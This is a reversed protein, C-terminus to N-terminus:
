REFLNLQDDDSNNSQRAIRRLRDLVRQVRHRIATASHGNRRSLEAASIGQLKFQTLLEREATSLWGRQQCNDLFRHLLIHAFSDDSTHHPELLRVPGVSGDGQLSRHSERIAWRFASRRIKRATIFALHSHRTDLEQSDLFALLTALLHQAIDDRGLSSFTASIRSTTRHITPIFVLLLIRRWMPRFRNEDRRRVLDIIVEDSWQDPTKDESRHLKEIVDFPSSFRALIPSCQAFSRFEQNAVDDSLELVLSAELRCILCECHTESM